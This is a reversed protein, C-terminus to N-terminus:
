DQDLREWEPINDATANVLRDLHACKLKTNSAEVGSRLMEPLFDAIEQALHQRVVMLRFAIEQNAQLMEELYMDGDQLKGTSSFGRLWHALPPNTQDLQMAVIRMAEYTLYSILTKTTAKAVQNIDM